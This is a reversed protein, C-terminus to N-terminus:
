FCTEKKFFAAGHHIYFQRLHREEEEIRSGIEEENEPKVKKKAGREKGGKSVDWGDIGM